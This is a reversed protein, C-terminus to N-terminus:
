QIINTNYQLNRLEPSQAPYLEQQIIANLLRTCKVYIIIITNYIEPSQAPYLEQQIIAYLLRTCKVYIIIITNYNEPSQVPYIYNRCYEIIANLLRTYKVYIIITTNYIEPSQELYVTNSSQLIIAYLFRTCKNCIVITTSYNYIEPSQAPYLKTEPPLPLPPPIFFATLKEASLSVRSAPFLHPEQGLNLVFGIECFTKFFKFIRFAHANYEDWKRLCM